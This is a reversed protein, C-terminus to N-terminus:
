SQASEESTDKLAISDAKLLVREGQIMYDYAKLLQKEQYSWALITEVRKRGKNGLAERQQPDNMLLAIRGAFDAEDNASAYLAADAASARHEPLDFAVVPKAFAMYDVVKIMTCCDNYPNSPEPAVCIDAASLFEGIRDHEVWGVFSVHDNLELERTLARVTLLADGDGLVLCSFNTINLEYVLHHLSRVLYDVGDQFGIIGVYVIKIKTDNKQASTVTKLTRLDPGNRVITIRHEPIGARKMDIRKYSQNTVIVHDALRCSAKELMVLVRHVLRNGRKNFRGYDYLEPSLDHHDFIFRKGFLKYFLAIAFFTDPPNHAHIIDFGHRFFVILSLVFAAIMAYGYEVIYGVLGNGNPPAPFRYVRVGAITEHFPQRPNAPCVITVQYGHKTLSEAEHRVRVDKPYANNELLMLVSTM